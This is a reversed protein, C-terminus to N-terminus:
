EVPNDTKNLFVISGLYGLAVEKCTKLDIGRLLGVRTKLGDEWNIDGQIGKKTIEWIEKEKNFKEALLPLYEADFLVGEVDFIVLM